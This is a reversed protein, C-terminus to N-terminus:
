VRKRKNEEAVVLAVTVEPQAGNGNHGEIKVTCLIVNGDCQIRGDIFLRLILRGNKQYCEMAADAFPGNDM